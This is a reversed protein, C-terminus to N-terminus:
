GDCGVGRSPITVLDWVAEVAYIDGGVHRLLAPDGPPQPLSTWQWREVEWLVLRDGLGRAPRHEPPVIPVMATWAARDYSGIQSGAKFGDPLELQTDLAVRGRTYNWHPRLSDIFEISGDRQVGLTYCFAADWKCVALNPVLYNTRTEEGGWRRDVHTRTVTGGAAITPTLAILPVEDRAAIRYARAIEEFERRERPDSSRKAAARYDAAKKRAGDRPIEVTSLEM